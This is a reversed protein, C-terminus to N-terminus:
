QKVSDWEYTIIVNTINNIIVCKTSFVFCTYNYTYDLGVFFQPLIEKERTHRYM